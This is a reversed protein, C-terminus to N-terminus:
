KMANAIANWWLDHLEAADWGLEAGPAKITLRDGGVKGIKVAPIGLVKTREVIKLAELATATLIIRGQTEGFLIAWTPCISRRAM